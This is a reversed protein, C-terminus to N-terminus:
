LNVTLKNNSHRKELQSLAYSVLPKIYKSDQDIDIHLEDSSCNTIIKLVKM